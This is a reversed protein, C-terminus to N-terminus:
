VWPHHQNCCCFLILVKTRGHKPLPNYPRKKAPASLFEKLDLQKKPQSYGM